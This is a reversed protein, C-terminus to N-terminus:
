RLRGNAVRWASEDDCGTGTLGLARMPAQGKLLMEDFEAEPDSQMVIAGGIGISVSDGIMVITRIVINLDVAGSLSLFGLAGSYVGRAGVELQDLLRMTRLKPAGTMSGGPFAAQVCAMATIDPRLAGRITSVMQHVTQYTEIGMLVPVTVSGVECVRGLDNRLLDVIMLHEARDKESARLTDRATADGEDSSGRGVTGKIPKSEVQRHHDIRLFREPSSCLIALSGSRLYAAYPAPNLRRLNRYVSLPDLQTSGILQNTLCIEYSAGSRLHRKCQNIRKLYDSHSQQLRFVLPAGTENMVSPFPPLTDLQGQTADLWIDADSLMDTPTLRVLYIEQTLHDFALFRDIFFFLADPTIARHTNSVGCEAKLEYGFYGVYGGRFDFPLEVTDCTQAAQERSLRAFVGDNRSPAGSVEIRRTAVDYRVDLNGPNVSAGMYSFRSLGEAVLSSDLWFAHEEQGFLHLFVLEPDYWQKLRRAFVHWRSRTVKTLPVRFRGEM